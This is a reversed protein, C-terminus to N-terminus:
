LSRRGRWGGRLLLHGDEEVAYGYVVEDPPEQLVLEGLEAHHEEVPVRALLLPVVHVPRERGLGPLRVLVVRVDLVDVDDHGRHAYCPMPVVHLPSRRAPPASSSARSSCGTSRGCRRPPDLMTSTSKTAWPHLASPTMLTRELARSASRFSINVADGARPPPRPPPLPLHRPLPLWAPPLTPM